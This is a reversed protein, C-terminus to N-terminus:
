GRKAFDKGLYYYGDKEELIGNKLLLNITRSVTATSLKTKKAIMQQSMFDEGKSNARRRHIRGTKRDAYAYLFNMLFVQNKREPLMGYEDSTLAEEWKLHYVKTFPEKGGTYNGPNAKKPKSLHLKGDFGKSVWRGYVEKGSDIDIIHLLAWKDNLEERSVIFEQKIVSNPQSIFRDWGRKEKKKKDM